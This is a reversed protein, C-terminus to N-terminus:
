FDKIPEIDYRKYRFTATAVMTHDAGVRIDMNIGSLNIPFCDKFKFKVKPNNSASLTTIEADAYQPFPVQESYKSLHKLNRYEQFDTPFAIGRMWDHVVRWSLLEEDLLFEVILPEYQFKDGPIALDSFPTNQETNNTHVAPINVAQCFFQTATIRPFTLIFKTSQLLDTNCIIQDSM